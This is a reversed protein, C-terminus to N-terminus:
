PQSPQFVKLGELERVLVLDGAVALHGWTSQSSVERRSLVRPEPAELDLLLLEGGSDLALLQNGRRVMSWYDGFPKSTFLDEGTGADIVTLRSNGLHLYIRQDLVVPSSMYGQAKHTWVEDVVFGQAEDKRVEYLFSKNRHTSTFIRDGLVSPTLINMGRFSPVPQSWLSEGTEPALGYLVERTQVLLQERGAVSAYVPSSFAGSRMIDGDNTLARWITEGTQLDVKVISNAAQVYLAGGALLPSSSFGFDPVATGFREPFDVSWQIEGTRADIKHLVEQMGGIYLAEGDFAPTSRIWDGNRAAFFPVKGTGAWTTRWVEEGSDRDFARAGETESDVTEAIFVRNASVVPGSYGKGLEVEWALALRALDSPWPEGPSTGDRHEGRWQNWSSSADAPQDAAIKAGSASAPPVTLGPVSLWLLSLVSALLLTPLTRPTALM